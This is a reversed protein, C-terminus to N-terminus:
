NHLIQLFTNFIRYCLTQTKGLWLTLELRREECTKQNRPFSTWILHPQLETVDGVADSRQDTIDSTSSISWPFVEVLICRNWSPINTSRPRESTERQKVQPWSLAWEEGTDPELYINGTTELVNQRLLLLPRRSRWVAAPCRWVWGPPTGCRYIRDFIHLVEFAAPKRKQTIGLKTAVDIPFVPLSLHSVSSLFLCLYYKLSWCSVGKVRVTLSYQSGDCYKSKFLHAVGVSFM